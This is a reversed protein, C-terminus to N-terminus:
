SEPVRVTVALPPAVVIVMVRALQGPGRAPEVPGGAAAIPLRGPPVGPTLSNLDPELRAFPTSTVSM